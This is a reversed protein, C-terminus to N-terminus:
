WNLIILVAKFDVNLTSIPLEFSSIATNLKKETKEVSLFNGINQRVIKLSVIDELSSLLGEGLSTLSSSTFNTVQSAFTM